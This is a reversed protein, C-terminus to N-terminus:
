CPSCPPENLRSPADGAADGGAPAGAGPDVGGGPDAPTGPAGTCTGAGASLLVGGDPVALPGAEGGVSRGVPPLPM